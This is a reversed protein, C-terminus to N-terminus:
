RRSNTDSGMYWRIKEYEDMKKTYRLKSKMDQVVDKYRYKTIIHLNPYTSYCHLNLIRAIEEIEVPMTYKSKFHFRVKKRRNTHFKEFTFSGDSYMIFDYKDIFYQKSHFKNDFTFSKDDIYVKNYLNILTYIYLILHLAFSIFIIINWLIDDIHKIFLYTLFSISAISLLILLLLLYKFKRNEYVIM